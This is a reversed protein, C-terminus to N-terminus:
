RRYFGPPPRTPTGGARKFDDPTTIRYARTDRTTKPGRKWELELVVDSWGSANAAATFEFTRLGTVVFNGSSPAQQVRMNTLTLVGGIQNLLQGYCKVGPAAILLGPGSPGPGTNTPPFGGCRPQPLQAAAPTAALCAVAFFGPVIFNLIRM